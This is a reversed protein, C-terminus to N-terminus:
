PIKQGRAPTRHLCKRSRSKRSGVESKRSGVESKGTAGKGNGELLSLMNETRSFEKSVEDSTLHDHELVERTLPLIIIASKSVLATARGMKRSNVRRIASYAAVPTTIRLKRMLKRAETLSPPATEPGEQM